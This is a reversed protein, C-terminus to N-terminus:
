YRPRAILRTVVAGINNSINPVPARNFIYRHYAM